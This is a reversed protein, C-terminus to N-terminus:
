GGFSLPDLYLFGFAALALAIVFYWYLSLVNVDVLHKEEVPGIFLLAILVLNELCSFTGHMTHMGLLTWFVSGHAHSDWRFPLAEFEWWRLGLFLVGLMTALGLGWRMGRLSGRKAAKGSYAMPAISLVLAALQGLALWRALPVLENPVFRQANQRLYVYAMLLLVFVTGEITIMLITGWWLPDRSGFAALPLHSVDLYLQNARKPGHAQAEDPGEHAVKGLAQRRAERRLFLAPQEDSLEDKHPRSPWYWGLISLAVLAAGIVVGWPTVIAVVFTVGTGVAAWLPWLTPGPLETRHDPVGDLLQTVLVERRNIRVGHVVPQRKGRTWLPYRGSVTPLEQFNYPPPPSTTAWELTDARWPDEGAVRGHRASRWLNVLLLLVSLLLVFAGVTAVQNLQDWGREPAYTYVRRPMGMLGLWHMPFFVLNFGVFFTWFNWRGLREGLM